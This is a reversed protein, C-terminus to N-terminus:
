YRKEKNNRTFRKFHTYKKKHQYCSYYCFNSFMLFLFVICATTVIFNDVSM